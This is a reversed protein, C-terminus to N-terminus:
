KVTCSPQQQTRVRPTPLRGALYSPRFRIAPHSICPTPQALLYLPSPPRILSSNATPRASLSSSAAHPQDSNKITNHSHSLPFLFLTSANDRMAGAVCAHSLASHNAAHRWCTISCVFTVAVPAAAQNPVQSHADCPSRDGVSHPRGVDSTAVIMPHLSCEDNPSKTM